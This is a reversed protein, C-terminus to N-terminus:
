QLYVPRLDLVSSRHRRVMDQLYKSLTEDREAEFKPGYHGMKLENGRYNEFDLKV